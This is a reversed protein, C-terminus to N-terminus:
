KVCMHSFLNQKKPLLCFFFSANSPYTETWPNEKTLPSESSTSSISICFHDACLHPWALYYVSHLFCLGFSTPRFLLKIVGRAADGVQVLMLIRKGGVSLETCEDIVSAGLLHEGM